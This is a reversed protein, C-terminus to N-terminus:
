CMPPVEPCDHSPEIAFEGKGTRLPDNTSIFYPYDKLSAASGSRLKNTAFPKIGLFESVRPLRPANKYTNFGLGVVKLFWCVGSSASPNNIRM